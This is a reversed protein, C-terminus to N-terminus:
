REAGRAAADFEALLRGKAGGELFAAEITRRGIRRVESAPLGAHEELVRWERSLTTSFLAPDDSNVTVRVGARHLAAIPHPAAFPVVRTMRNSTPCCELPLGREALVRVLVADEVARVGHGIRDVELVEMAEWVSRPGAFEGAHATTRLGLRRAERFAPALAAAPCATEDGGIGVGVVGHPRCLAASEVLEEMGGPGWQRVGDFLFEMRPGGDRRGEAATAAVAHMIERAPLGRREYIGASIMVEAHRVSEGALRGSLGGVAAAFDEPRRLAETVDRFHALFDRFDRHRYLTELRPRDGPAGQRARIAVLTELDISGELHLHIEAKPMGAAVDPPGPDM